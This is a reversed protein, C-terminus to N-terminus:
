RVSPCWHTLIFKRKISLKMKTKLTDDSRKGGAAQCVSLLFPRSNPFKFSFLSMSDSHIVVTFFFNMPFLSKFITNIFNIYANKISHILYFIPHFTDFQIWAYKLLPRAPSLIGNFPYINRGDTRGDTGGM